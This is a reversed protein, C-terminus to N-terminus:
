GALIQRALSKISRNNDPTNPETVIGDCYLVVISAMDKIAKFVWDLTDDGDGGAILGDIQERPGRLTMRNWWNMYVQVDPLYLPLGRQADHTLVFAMAGDTMTPSLGLGLDGGGMVANSSLDSRSLYMHVQHRLFRIGPVDPDGSIMSALTRPVGEALVASRVETSPWRRMLPEIENYGPRTIMASPTQMGNVRGWAVSAPDGNAARVREFAEHLPQYWRAILATLGFTRRYLQVRQLEPSTDSAMFCGRARDLLATMLDLCTGSRDDLDTATAYLATFQSMVSQRGNYGQGYYGNANETSKRQDAGSLADGDRTAAWAQEGLDFFNAM